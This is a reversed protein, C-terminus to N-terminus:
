ESDSAAQLKAKRSAVVEHCYDEARDLARFGSEAEEAGETLDGVNRSTLYEELRKMGQRLMTLAEQMRETIKQEESAASQLKFKVVVSGYLMLGSDALNRLRKVISLFEDTSVSGDQIGAIAKKFRIYNTSEELEQKVPKKETSTPTEAAPEPSPSLVNMGPEEEAVLSAGCSVCVTSGPANEHSCKACKSSGSLIQSVIKSHDM